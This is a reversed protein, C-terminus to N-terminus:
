KSPAPVAPATWRFETGAPLVIKTGPVLKGTADPVSAVVQVEKELVCVTGSKLYLAHTPGCGGSLIATILLLGASLTKRYNRM